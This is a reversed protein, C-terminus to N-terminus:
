DQKLENIVEKTLESEESLLLIHNYYAELTDSEYVGQERLEIFKEKMKGM